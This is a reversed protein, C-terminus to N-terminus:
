GPTQGNEGADNALVVYEYAKSLVLVAKPLENVDLTYTTKWGGDPSKYRKQFTVKKMKVKAGNREVENEFVAAECRGCRFRMEPQAM